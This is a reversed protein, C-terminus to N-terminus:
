AFRARACARHIKEVNETVGAADAACKLFAAKVETGQIGEEIDHVFLDAMADAISTGEISKLPATM